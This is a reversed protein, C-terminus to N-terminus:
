DSQCYRSPFLYPIVDTSLTDLPTDGDVWRNEILQHSVDVLAKYSVNFESEASAKLRFFRAEGSQSIFEEVPIYPDIVLSEELIVENPIRSVQISFIFIASSLVEYTLESSVQFKM